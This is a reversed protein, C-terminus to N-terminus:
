ALEIRGALESEGSRIFFRDHTQLLDILIRLDLFRDSNMVYSCIGLVPLGKVMHDLTEEFRKM